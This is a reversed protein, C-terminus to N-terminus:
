RCSRITACLLATVRVTVACSKASDALGEDPDVRLRPWVAEYGTKVALMAPKQRLTRRSYRVAPMRSRLSPSCGTVVGLLM